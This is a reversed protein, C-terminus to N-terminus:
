CKIVARFLASNTPQQLLLTTTAITNRKRKPYNHLWGPLSTTRVHPFVEIQDSRILYTRQSNLLRILVTPFTFNCICCYDETCFYLESRDKNLLMITFHHISLTAM